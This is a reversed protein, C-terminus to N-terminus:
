SIPLDASIPCLDSMFIWNTPVSECARRLININNPYHPLAVPFRFDLANNKGLVSLFCQSSKPKPVYAIKSKGLTSPLYNTPFCRFSGVFPYLLPSNWASASGCGILEGGGRRLVEQIEEGFRVPM